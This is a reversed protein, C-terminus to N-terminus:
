RRFCGSIWFACAGRACLARAEGGRVSQAKRRNTRRSGFRIRGLPPEDLAWGRLIGPPAVQRPLIFAPEPRGSPPRASTPRTTRPAPRSRPVAAAGVRCRVGLGRYRPSTVPLSPVIDDQAVAIDGGSSSAPPAAQRLLAPIASQTRRFQCEAEPLHLRWLRAKPAADGRKQGRKGCPLGRGHEGGGRTSWSGSTPASMWSSSQPEIGCSV